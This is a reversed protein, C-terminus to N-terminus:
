EIFVKCFFYTEVHTAVKLDRYVHAKYQEMARKQEEKNERELMEDILSGKGDKADMEAKM